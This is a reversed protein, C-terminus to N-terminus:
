IIDFLSLTNPIFARIRPAMNLNMSVAIAGNYGDDYSRIYFEDAGSDKVVPETFDLLGCPEGGLLRVKVPKDVDLSGSQGRLYVRGYTNVVCLSRVIDEVYLIYLLWLAHFFCHHKLFVTCVGTNRVTGFVAIVSKPYETGYSCASLLLEPRFGEVYVDKVYEHIRTNSAYPEAYWDSDGLGYSPPECFGHSMMRQWWERVTITVEAPQVRSLFYRGASMNAMHTAKAGFMTMDKMCARMYVEIADINNAM